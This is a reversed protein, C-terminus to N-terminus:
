WLSLWKSLQVFCLLEQNKPCFSIITRVSLPIGKM